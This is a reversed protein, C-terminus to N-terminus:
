DLGVQRRPLGNAVVLAPRRGRSGVFRAVEHVAHAEEADNPRHAGRDVGGAALAEVAEKALKQPPLRWLHQRRWARRLGDEWGRRGLRRQQKETSRPAQIPQILPKLSTAMGGLACNWSINM